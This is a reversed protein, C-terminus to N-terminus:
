AAAPLEEFPIPREDLAFAPYWARYTSALIGNLTRTRVQLRLHAGEPTWRMHQKKVMQKSVVQNVTSEVLASSITEECRHRGRLEPPLQRSGNCRRKSIM